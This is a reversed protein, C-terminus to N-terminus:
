FTQGISLYIQLPSTDVGKRPNLPFGADLRIPGVPTYYRVGLGVSQLIKKDLEPLTSSYVNGFDYFLVAGFNKTFHYRYEATYILMSKGGTPKNDKNLPSVSKYKYGRLLTDTGADFLESRPIETKIPGPITGLTTQFAFVSRRNVDLPIYISGSLINISYFRQAGVFKYSPIARIGIKYGTTPDLISDSRNWYAFIPSKFLDFTEHRRKPTCPTRSEHIDTDILHKYMLGYSLNFCKNVQRVLMGSLSYSTETYGIDKERLYDAAWVLDQKPMGFDPVVYSLLAYQKTMWLSTQFSLRDGMGTLNRHAWEASIGFGRQTEYNAGFGISRAKGEKVEITIPLSHDELVEDPYVISVSSFLGSLELANQTYQIKNPSYIDGERWFLKKNFYARKVRESGTIALPGFYARPGSDVFLKVSVNKETQDAIVEQKTVRAFPYGNCKLLEELANEAKLIVRPYAIRGLEVGLENLTITSLPFANNGEVDALLEFDILPYQPGPDIKFYIKAPEDLLDFELHVHANYYAQSHLVKIINNVDNEARRRLGITTSPPSKQLSVLQSATHLLEYTKGDEIGQFEVTYSEVGFGRACITLSSIFIFLRSLNKRM